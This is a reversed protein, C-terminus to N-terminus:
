VSFDCLASAPFPMRCSRPFSFLSDLSIEVCTACRADPEALLHKRGFACRWHRGASQSVGTSWFLLSGNNWTTDICHCFRGRLMSSFHAERELSPSLETTSCKRGQFTDQTKNRMLLSPSLSLFSTSVVYFYRVLCQTNEAVM